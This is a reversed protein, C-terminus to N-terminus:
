PSPSTNMTALESVITGPAQAMIAWLRVGQVWMQGIDAVLQEQVPASTGGTAPGVGKVIRDFAEAAQKSADAAATNIEDIAKDFAM